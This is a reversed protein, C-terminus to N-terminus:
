ETLLVHLTVDDEIMLKLLDKKWNLKPIFFTWIQNREEAQFQRSFVDLASLSVSRLRFPRSPHRHPPSYFAGLDPFGIHNLLWWGDSENWIFPSLIRVLNALSGSPWFFSLSIVWIRAKISLEWLQPGLRNELKLGSAWIRYLHGLYWSCSKLELEFGLRFSLEWGQPGFQPGFTLLNGMIGLWGLCVNNIVPGM